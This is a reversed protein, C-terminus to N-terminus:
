YNILQDWRAQVEDHSFYSRNELCNEVLVKWENLASQIADSLILPDLERIVKGCNYKSIISSLGVKNSAIVPLGRIIAEGVTLAFNEDESPILLLSSEKFLSEFIEGQGVHGLFNVNSAVGLNVSLTKLEATLQADGTGAILLKVGPLSDKLVAIAKICLDIRKKQAIRSLCLFTPMPENFIKRKPVDLDFGLGTVEIKSNPFFVRIDLVEADTMAVFVVSLQRRMLVRILVHFIRKFFKRDNRSFKQFSGHPIILIKGKTRSFILLFPLSVLYFGHHITIKHSRVLRFLRYMKLTFGYENKHFSKLIEVTALDMQNLITKDNNGISLFTSEYERLYVKALIVASKVPGGNKELLGTFIQMVEGQKKGATMESIGEIRSM